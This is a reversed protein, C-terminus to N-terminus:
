QPSNVKGDGARGPQMRRYTCAAAHFNGVERCPPKQTAADADAQTSKKKSKTPKRPHMPAAPAKVTAAPAEQGLWRRERPSLVLV